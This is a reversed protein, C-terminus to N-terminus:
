VGIGKIGYLIIGTAVAVNLSEIDGYLPIKVEIGPLSDVEPSIGNGENGVFVMYKGKPVENYVFEGKASAKLATMNFRETLSIVEDLEIDYHIPIKYLAGMTSRLTKENFLDVTGKLLYISSVGAAVATRIITGLNGPDQVKDLVLVLDGPDNTSINPRHALVAIGQSNVTGSIENFVRDAFIIFPFRESYSKYRQEDSERIILRDIVADTNLIDKVLRLGEFYLLPSKSNKGKRKFEVIDKVLKNSSSTILM